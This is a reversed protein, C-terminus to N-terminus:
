VNSTALIVNLFFEAVFYYDTIKVNQSQSIRLTTLIPTNVRHTDYVIIILM